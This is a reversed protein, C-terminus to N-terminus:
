SERWNSLDTYSHTSQTKDGITWEVSVSVRVLTEEGNYSGDLPDSLRFYRTIEIPTGANLIERGPVVTLSSTVYCDQGFCSSMNALFSAWSRSDRYARVLELEEASLKSNQLLLKSRISARLTSVSLSVLSTIVIIGIALAAITEVLGIGEQKLKIRM